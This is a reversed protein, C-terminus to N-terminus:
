RVPLPKQGALPRYYEATSACTSTPSTTRAARKWDAAWDTHCTTLIIQLKHDRALDLLFNETAARRTPDFAVLSDDLMIFVPGCTEALARGVAVKVALAAQHREGFSLHRPEWPKALGSEKVHTVKLEPSLVVEGGAGSTLAALHETVKKSLDVPVHAALAEMKQEIREKLLLRADQLLSERKFAENADELDDKIAELSRHSQVQKLQGSWDAVKKEAELLQAAIRALEQRKAALTTRFYNQLPASPERQLEDAGTFAAALDAAKNRTTELNRKHLSREADNPRREELVRLNEKAQQIEGQKRESWAKLDAVAHLRKGTWAEKDSLTLKNDSQAALTLQLEGKVADLTRPGLLDRLRSKQETLDRQLQAKEEAAALFAAMTKVDFKALLKESREEATQAAAKLPLVDAKGAATFTLGDAVVTVRGAIGKHSEGANLKIEREPQGDEAVKLVRPTKDASLEFRVGTAEIKDRAATIQNQLKEYEKVDAPDPRKRAALQSELAAYEEQAKTAGEVSQRLADIKRTLEEDRAFRYQSLLQDRERQKTELDKALAAMDEDLQAWEAQTKVMDDRTAAMQVAPALLKDLQELKQVECQLTREQEKIGDRRKRALDLQDRQRAIAQEIVTADELEQQLDEARVKAQTLAGKLQGGHDGKRAADHDRELSKVVQKPDPGAGRITAATLLSHGDSPFDDLVLGMDDQRGWLLLAAAEASIPLTEQVKDLAKKKGKITPAGAETWEGKDDTLYRKLSVAAADQGFSLGLTVTPVSDAAFESIFSDRVEKPSFFLAALIAQQLTSKGAGNPAAIVTLPAGLDLKLSEIRRVHRLEVSHIRM